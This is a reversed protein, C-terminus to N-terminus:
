RKLGEEVEEKLIALHNKLIAWVVADDISDYSHIIRNRFDIIQRAQSLEIEAEEKRYINVAEGIIGLQREVASKTKLDNQYDFFSDIGEVFREILEIARQIDSLYKKAKGTM